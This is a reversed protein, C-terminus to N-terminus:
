KRKKQRRIANIIRMISFKKRIKLVVERGLMLSGIWFIIESVIVMALTIGAVTAAPFPLCANFPMIAYLTFSIVILSLAIVKYIKKKEICKM